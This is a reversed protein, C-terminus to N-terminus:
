WGHSGAHIDCGVVGEAKAASAEAKMREAAIERAEYVASTFNELEVNRGVSSLKALWAVTRWTTFARVWSWKSRGADRIYFRGSTRAPFTAYSNLSDGTIRFLQV